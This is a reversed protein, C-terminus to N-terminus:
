DDKLKGDVTAIIIFVSTTQGTKVNGVRLKFSLVKGVQNLETQDRNGMKTKETLFCRKGGFCLMVHILLNLNSNKSRALPPFNFESNPLDGQWLLFHCLSGFQYRWHLWTKQTILSSWLVFSFCTDNM